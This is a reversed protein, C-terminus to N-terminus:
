STEGPNDTKKFSGLKALLHDSPKEHDGGKKDMGINKMINDLM